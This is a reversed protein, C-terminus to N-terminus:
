RATNDDVRQSIPNIFKDTLKTCEIVKYVQQKQKSFGTAIKIGELWQAYKAKRESKIIGFHISDKGGVLEVHCKIKIKPAKEVKKALVVGSPFILCVSFIIIAAFRGSRENFILNM